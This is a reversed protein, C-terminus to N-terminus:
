ARNGGEVCITEIPRRPPKPSSDSSHFLCRSMPLSADLNRFAPRTRFSSSSSSPSSSAVDVASTDDICGRGAPALSATSRNRCATEDASSWRWGELGAVGVTAAFGAGRSGYVKGACLAVETICAAQEVHRTNRPPPFLCSPLRSPFISVKQFSRSYASAAAAVCSHSPNSPPSFM